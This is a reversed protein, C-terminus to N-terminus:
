RDAIFPRPFPIANSDGDGASTNFRPHPGRWKPFSILSLATNGAFEEELGARFHSRKLGCVRRLTFIKSFEIFKTFRLRIERKASFLM